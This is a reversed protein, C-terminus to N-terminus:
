ILFGVANHYIEYDKGQSKITTGIVDQNTQLVSGEVIFTTSQKYLKESNNDYKNNLTELRYFSQTFDVLDDDIVAKSLLLRKNQQHNVFSCEPEYGIFKFLNVGISRKGGISLYKHKEIAKVIKNLTEDDNFKIYADFVLNEDCYILNTYFLDADQGINIRNRTYIDDRFTKKLSYNNLEEKKILLNLHELLIYEGNMINSYYEKNFTNYDSKYDLYISLSIKDIKKAKKLKNIIDLTILNGDIFEPNIDLPIPLTNELFFSSVIFSYKKMEMDKLFDELIEKGYYNKITTSIAGFFSQSDPIKSIPGCPKFKFKYTKM